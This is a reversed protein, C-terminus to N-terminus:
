DMEETRRRTTRQDNEFSICALHELHKPVEIIREDQQKLYPAGDRSAAAVIFQLSSTTLPDTMM